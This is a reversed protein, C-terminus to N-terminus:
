PFKVSPISYKQLKQTTPITVTGIASPTMYGLHEIHKVRESVPMERMM